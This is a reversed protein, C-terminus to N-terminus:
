RRMAPEPLHVRVIEVTNVLGVSPDLLDPTLTGDLVVRVFADRSADLQVGRLVRAITDLNSFSIVFRDRQRFDVSVREVLLRHQSFPGDQTAIYMRDESDVDLGDVTQRYYNEQLGSTALPMRRVKEDEDPEIRVVLEGVGFIPRDQSDIAIPNYQDASDRMLGHWAVIGDPDLQVIGLVGELVTAWIRGRSDVAIDRLRLPLDSDLGLGIEAVTPVRAIEIQRWRQKGQRPYRAIEVSTSFESRGMIVDDDLLTRAGPWTKGTDIEFRQAVDGERDITYARLFGHADDISGMGLGLLLLVAGDADRTLSLQTVTAGASVDPEPVPREFVVNGDADLWSVWLERESGDGVRVGAATVEGDDHVFFDDTTALCNLAGCGAYPLAHRWVIEAATETDPGTQIAIVNLAEREHPACLVTGDDDCPLEGVSVHSRDCGSGLAMTVGCAFAIGRALAMPATGASRELWTNKM